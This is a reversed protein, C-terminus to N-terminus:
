AITGSASASPVPSWTGTSPGNGLPGGRMGGHGGRMGGHGGRMGDHGGRMGGRMAGRMAGAGVFRTTVVDGDVTGSVMVVDGAALASGKVTAGDKSVVTAETIAWIRTYGDDSRVTISTDSAATVKGTQLRLTIYTLNGSSDTSAAVGESHLMPGGLGHRGPLIRGQTSAALTSSSSSTTSDEAFVPGTILAGAVAVAGFMGGLIASQKHVKM